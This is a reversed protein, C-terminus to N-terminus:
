IQYLGSKKTTRRRFVWIEDDVQMPHIQPDRPLSKLTVLLSNLDEDYCHINILDQVVGVCVSQKKELLVKYLYEPDNTRPDDDDQVVVDQVRIGNLDTSLLYLNHDGSTSIAFYLKDNWRVMAHDALIDGEELDDVQTIEVYAWLEGLDWDLRRLTLLGDFHTCFLIWQESTSIWEMHKCGTCRSFNTIDMRHSATPSIYSEERWEGDPQDMMPNMQYKVVPSVQQKQVRNKVRNM